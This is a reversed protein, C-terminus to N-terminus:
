ERFYFLRFLVKDTVYYSVSLTLAYVPKIDVRMLTVARRVFICSRYLVLKKPGNLANVGPMRKPSSSRLWKGGM